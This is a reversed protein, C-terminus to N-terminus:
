PCHLWVTVCGLLYPVTLSLQQALSPIKRNGWHERLSLLLCFCTGRLWTSFLHSKQPRSHFSFLLARLWGWFDPLDSWATLRWYKQEKRLLGWFYLYVKKGKLFLLPLPAPPSCVWLGWVKLQIKLTHKCKAIIWSFIQFIFIPFFFGTRWLESAECRMKCFKWGSLRRYSSFLMHFELSTAKGQYLNPHSLFSTLNTKSKNWFLAKLKIRFETMLGSRQLFGVPVALSCVSWLTFM